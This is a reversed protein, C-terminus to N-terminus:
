HQGMAAGHQPTPVPIPIPGTGWEPSAMNGHQGPDALECLGTGTPSPQLSVQLHLARPPCVRGGVWCPPVSHSPWRSEYRHLHSCLLVTPHPCFVAPLLAHTPSPEPSSSSSGLSSSSSSGKTAAPIMTTWPPSPSLVAASYHLTHPSLGPSTGRQLPRPLAPVARCAFWQGEEELLHYLGLHAGEARATATSVSVWLCWLSSQATCRCSPHAPHSAFSM